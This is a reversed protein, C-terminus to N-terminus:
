AVTLSLNLIGKMWRPDGMAEHNTTVVKQKALLLMRILSGGEGREVEVKQNRRGKGKTLIVEFLIPKSVFALGLGALAGAQAAVTWAVCFAFVFGFVSFLSCM